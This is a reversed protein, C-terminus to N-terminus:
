SATAPLRTLPESEWATHDAAILEICKPSLVFFGGNIWGGDGRPKEAFGRVIAGDLGPAMAAPLSSERSRPSGATSDHFRTLAGIDVDAV